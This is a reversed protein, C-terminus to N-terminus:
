GASPSVAAAFNDVLCAADRWGPLAVDRGTAGIGLAEPLFFLFRWDSAAGRSCTVVSSADAVFTFAQTVDRESLSPLGFPDLVLSLSDALIVDVVFNAACWRPEGDPGLLAPEEKNLASTGGCPSNRGRLRSGPVLVSGEAGVFTTDALGATTPVAPYVALMAENASYAPTDDTIVSIDYSRSRTGLRVRLTDEAEVTLTPSNGCGGSSGSKVCRGCVSGELPTM